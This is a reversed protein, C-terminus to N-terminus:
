KSFTCIKSPFFFVAEHFFWSSVVIVVVVLMVCGCGGRTLVRQVGVLDTVATYPWGDLLVVVMSMVEVHGVGFM